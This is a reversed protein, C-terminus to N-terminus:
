LRGGEEFEVGLDVLELGGQGSASPRSRMAKRVLSAWACVARSGRRRLRHLEWWRRERRLTGRGRGRMAPWLRWVDQSPRAGSGCRRRISSCCDAAGDIWGRGDGIGDEGDVGGVVGRGGRGEEGAGVDLLGVVVDGIRLPALAGESGVREIRPGLEGEVAQGDAEALHHLGELADGAGAAEVLGEDDGGGDADADIRLGADKREIAARKGDADGDVRLGCGVAGDREFKGVAPAGIGSLRSNWRLAAPSVSGM